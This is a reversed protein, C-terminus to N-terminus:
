RADGPRNAEAFERIRRSGVTQGSPWEKKKDDLEVWKNGRVRYADAFVRLYADLRDAKDDQRPVISPYGLGTEELAFYTKAFLVDDVLPRQDRVVANRANSIALTDGQSIWNM